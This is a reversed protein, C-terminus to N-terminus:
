QRFEPPPPPLQRVRAKFTEYGRSTVQLNATREPPLQRILDRVHAIREETLPHTSFWQELQSPQREREAVLEKFFTVMGAPDLGAGPLLRVAIADAENEAERSHRSFYAQAGVNVAAGALGQPPGGLLISGIAVGAQAAQMREIMEASHRAEVHGIEHAVVGALEALNDTREVLGRNVYVFGGPIAFANIQEINVVYFTYPIDRNGPQRQIRNGLENIYRHIVPDDVIPLQRNIEAAYQRGMQIEQQQSVGCAALGASGAVLGLALTRRMSSVTM